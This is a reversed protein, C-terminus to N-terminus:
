GEHTRGGGAYLFCFLGGLGRISGPSSGPGEPGKIGVARPYMLNILVYGYVGRAGVLGHDGPCASVM